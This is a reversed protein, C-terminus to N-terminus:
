EATGISEEVEAEAENITFRPIRSTIGLLVIRHSEAENLGGVVHYVDVIEDGESSVDLDSPEEWEADDMTSTANWNEHAEEIHIDYDECDEEFPVGNSTSAEFEYAWLKNFNKQMSDTFASCWVDMYPDQARLFDWHDDSTHFGRLCCSAHFRKLSLNDRVARLLDRISGKWLGIKHLELAQLTASHKELVNLLGMECIILGDLRLKDLQAWTHQGLFKSIPFYWQETDDSSYWDGGAMLGNKIHDFGFRLDKLGPISTLFSSLAKWFIQHPCGTANFTLNLTHLQQFAKAFHVLDVKPQRFFTVPLHDHSFHKLRSKTYILTSLIATFENNARQFYDNDFKLTWVGFLIQGRFGVSKRSIDIRELLKLRQFVQFIRLSSRHNQAADFCRLNWDAYEQMVENRLRTLEELRYEKDSKSLAYNHTSMCIFGLDRSMHYVNKLCLETPLSPPGFTATAYKQAKSDNAPMANAEPSSPARVTTSETAM